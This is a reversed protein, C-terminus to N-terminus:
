TMLVAAIGAFGLAAGSALWLTGPGLVPYLLAGAAAGGALGLWLLLYSLWALPPGGLMAATLHQGLRVLTGTMYTLGIHVEGEREFVTNEAGMALVMAAAAATPWGQAELRAALALLAAVLLLVSAAARWPTFRRTLTGAMVGTVFLAILGIALLAADPNRALGVGLRTTNGSMFSVFFGGLSIFGIADVFGALGSLGAAFLRVRKAYSTM